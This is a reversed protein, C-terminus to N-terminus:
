RLWPSQTVREPGINATLIAHQYQLRWKLKVAFITEMTSM